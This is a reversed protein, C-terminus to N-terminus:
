NLPSGMGKLNIVIDGDGIVRGRIQQMCLVNLVYSESDGVDTINSIKGSFVTIAQQPMQGDLNALQIWGEDDLGPNGDIFYSGITGPGSVKTIRFSIHPFDRFARSPLFTEVGDSLPVDADFEKRGEPQFLENIIEEKM